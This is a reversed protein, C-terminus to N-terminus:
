DRESSFTSEWLTHLLQEVLEAKGRMVGIREKQFMRISAANSRGDGFAKCRGGVQTLIRFGPPPSYPRGAPRGCLRGSPNVRAVPRDGRCRIPKEV